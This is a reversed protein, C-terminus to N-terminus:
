GFKATIGREDRAPTCGGGVIGDVKFGGGVVDLGGSTVVAGGGTGFSSGARLHASAAHAPVVWGLTLLASGTREVADVGADCGGASLGTEPIAWVLTVCIDVPGARMSTRTIQMRKSM